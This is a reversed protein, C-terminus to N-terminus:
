QLVCLNNVVWTIRSVFDSSIPVIVRKRVRVWLRERM